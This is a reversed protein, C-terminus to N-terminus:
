LQSVALKINVPPLLEALPVLDFTLSGSFPRMCQDASTTKSPDMFFGTATITVSGTDQTMVRDVIGHQDVTALSPNSSVWRLTTALMVGTNTHTININIPARMQHRYALKKNSM